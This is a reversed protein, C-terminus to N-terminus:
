VGLEEALALAQYQDLFAIGEVIQNMLEPSPDTSEGEDDAPGVILALGALPTYFLEPHWVFMSNTFLGEDDVFAMEGDESRLFTGTFIQSGLLDNIDMFNDYEVWKVLRSYPDILIGSKM